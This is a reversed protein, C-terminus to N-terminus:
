RTGVSKGLGVGLDLRDTVFQHFVYAQSISSVPDGIAPELYIRNIPGHLVQKM